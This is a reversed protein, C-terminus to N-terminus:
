PAVGSGLYGSFTHISFARGIRNPSVTASLISYDCPHYVTNALGLAAFAAVLVWYGPLTAAATIAAAGLVLGATLIARPGVRDVLFGAPTQFAASVVNFATLALGIEIYSVGYESRVSELVPPLLLIVYHSVFHAACILAIVQGDRATSSALPRPESSTAVSM